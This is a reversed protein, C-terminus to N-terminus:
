RRQRRLSIVVGLFLLSSLMVLAWPTLTPVAAQTQPPPPAAGCAGSDLVPNSWNAAVINNGVNTFDILGFNIDVVENLGDIFWESVATIGAINTTVTGNVPDSTDEWDTPATQLVGAGNTTFSGNALTFTSASYNIAIFLNSNNFTFIACKLNAGTWTQNAVSNNGNDLILKITAQEGSNIGALVLSNSTTDTYTVSYPAAMAGAAFGFAAAGTLWKAINKKLM